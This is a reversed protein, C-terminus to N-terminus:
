FLCDRSIRYYELDQEMKKAYTFGLLATASWFDFFFMTYQIRAIISSPILILHLIGAMGTCVAAGLYLLKGNTKAM